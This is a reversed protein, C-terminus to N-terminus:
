IGQVYGVRLWDAVLAANRQAILRFMEVYREPPGSELSVPLAPRNTAVTTSTPTTDMTDFLISAENSATSVAQQLTAPDVKSVGEASVEGTSKDVKVEVTDGMKLLEPVERFCVFDALQTLEEYERRMAFLELQGVRLFSRSVRCLVAGPERLLYDPAFKRIPTVCAANSLTPVADTTSPNNNNTPLPHTYNNCTSTAAYWPRAIEM